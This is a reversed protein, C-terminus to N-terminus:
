VAVGSGQFFWAGGADIAGPAEPTTGSGEYYWAGNPYLRVARRNIFRVGYSM